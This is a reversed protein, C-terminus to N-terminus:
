LPTTDFGLQAWEGLSLDSLKRELFVQCEPGFISEWENQLRTEINSQWADFAVVMDEDEWDFAPYVYEKELNPSGFARSVDGLEDRVMVVYKAM